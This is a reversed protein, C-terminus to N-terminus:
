AAEAPIDLYRSPQELLSQRSLPGRHRMAQQRLLRYAAGAEAMAATSAGPAGTDPHLSTALSRWRPALEAVDLAEPLALRDWAAALAQPDCATIRLAGQFLAPLPGRLDCGAHATASAPLTALAAEIAAEAGAPIIITVGTEADGQAPTADAMALAVPRLAKRLAAQRAAVEGQLLDGIAKAMAARPGAQLRGRGAAVIAEPSWRLIVDWQHRRGHQRLAQALDDGAAQLMATLDAEPCIAMGPDCALFPGAQCLFELRQQLAALHRLLGSKDRNLLLARAPKEAPQCLAAVEGLPITWVDRGLRIAQAAASPAPLLGLLRTGPQM